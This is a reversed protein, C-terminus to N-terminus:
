FLPDTNEVNRQTPITPIETARPWWKFTTTSHHWGPHGLTLSCQLDADQPHSDWCRHSPKYRTHGAV